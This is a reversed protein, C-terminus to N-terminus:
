SFIDLAAATRLLEPEIKDRGYADMFVDRYANTHLNFELTWIGWILDQHRDGIGGSGLDIFGTFNWDRDLMINPLCYDGHLLTDNKLYPFNTQVVQWAEERTTFQWQTEFLDPEWYGRDFGQKARTYSSQTKNFLPCGNIPQEHLKRLLTATTEALRKPDELFRPHTCDEGPIARTLLWDAEETFYDLVEPGLGLRHFFANMQAEKELTAKAATKLFLDQKELYWVNAEPSCSSDYVPTDTLFPHLRRPFANLDPVIPTRRM